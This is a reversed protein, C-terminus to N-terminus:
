LGRPRQLPSLRPGGNARARLPSYRPRACPLTALVHARTNELSCPTGAVSARELRTACAAPLLAGGIRARHLPLRGEGVDFVFPFIFVDM